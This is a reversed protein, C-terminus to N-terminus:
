KNSFYQRIAEWTYSKKNKMIKKIDWKDVVKGWADWGTPGIDIIYDSNLIVDMNHEIVLVSNWKDVLSHLIKLLKEVDQFHLWTTPEDLIYFTKWTSRKSLETALKIRQAEWWSLTTSSQWLRIYGLWVKNLVELIKKIKPHAWFFDLAEEVTMELVDSISKGKYKITLTEKNFRKWKCSECTVYVPPLFHMEVKKVGDWDCVECRWWKTNFSFRWPKYWRIKSEQTEAFVDRIHTFVWTYTAPNSRPTRGIPSQDIIVVKDLKDLWELRDVRWVTRRAWNLNNALYPSIIHNVLSSKWSGSVWTVVTLNWLPIDVDVKKLNNQAAWYVSLHNKIKREKRKIDISKEGSLYPATVSKKNKLVEEPTGEAIVKWGHKWAWPWIDIIHDCQKMIDEDHEVVILTNGIDRLRKLNDILMQNDRPHLGISPEDLVYVIGELKTWIQTALRIRQGEWGSLTWSRRSITIYSLWVWALFELRDVVNKFIWKIIKEKSKPYKYNKFFDIAKDVSLDALEWINKWEIYISLSEPKLRCWNCTPCPMLTTFEKLRDSDRDGSFYRRSLTNIVWEFRSHYTNTRGDDTTHKVRYKEEWTGYMITKRQEKTYKKYPIDTPVWHTKWVEKMLNIYYSWFGHAIIAWEEISLNPKVLSSELFVAKEWLWHCESCAWYHSNFSFSSITLEEPIHGCNSCVFVNSYKFNEDTDVYDIELQWEWTKFALEISDQVRKYDSSEDNSFDKIVLRDVVVYVDADKDIVVDDNITYITNNLSFRIFWLNLVTKKVGEFSKEEWKLIPAKILFKEGQKRSSFDEFIWDISDKKIVSGCEVCKREWLHLYLLKYYDYIETITWVTSRPNNSVTKQDISITPSLGQIDVVDAEEWMGWVFMRAYTSLSELYKKKWENYITHFALSSKGSWSVGTVVVLKDKPINVNINKLNHTKAWIVKLEKSM